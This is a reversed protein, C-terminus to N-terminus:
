GYRVFAFLFFFFVSGSTGTNAYDCTNHFCRVLVLLLLEVIQQRLGNQTIERTRTLSSAPGVERQNAPNSSQRTESIPGDVFVFQQQKTILFWTATCWVRVYVCRRRQGTHKFAGGGKGGLRSTTKHQTPRSLLINHKAQRVKGRVGPTTVLM